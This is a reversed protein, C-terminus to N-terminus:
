QMLLRTANHRYLILGFCLMSVSAMSLYQWSGGVTEYSAFCADRILEIAHLLPNWIVYVRYDAPVVSLPFIVGSIFYMPRLLMPLFKQTEEYLTVAVCAILACGCNFIYLAILAALLKLPDNLEVRYGVWAACLLLVILTALHILGELAMRAILTDATKVQRYGFLGKNASIANMGQTVMNNFMQYPVIAVIFFVPFDIGPFTRKFVFSFIATLVLVHSAPELLAWAYGLRYRGFRTKLERILLAFLVSKQVDLSSRNVMVRETSSRSFAASTM